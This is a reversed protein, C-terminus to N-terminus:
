DLIYDGEGQSRLVNRELLLAHVEAIPIFHCSLIHQMLRYM